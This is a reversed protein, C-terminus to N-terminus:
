LALRVSATWRRGPLTRPLVAGGAELSRPAWDFTNEHGLANALGVRVALRGLGVAREWALAVDLALLAPLEAEAPDALAPAFGDALAPAEPGLLYDYYAARYGWTRGLVARGATEVALGGGVGLRVDASLRHPAEWPTPVARGDFRGPVTRRAREASYAAAARLRPGAYEARVGAGIASGRVAAVVDAPAREAPTDPGAAVLAPVDLALARGDFRGFTEARLTWRAGPLVLADAALHVSRPPAVDATTPLWVFLEPVVAAPSASRVALGNVFQRYLGGALRVAYDGVGRWAGDYRASLRPEAYVTARAPVATLRVGGELTTRVGLTARGGLSSTALWAGAGVAFPAMFGNGAEVHAGVHEAGLSASLERGPGLSLTGEAEVARETLVHRADAGRADALAAYFADDAPGADARRGGFRYRYSSRHDSARARVAVLGRAGVLRTYRATGAWNTWDYDDRVGLLRDPMGGEAGALTGAREAAVHNRARYLSATATGLPDPRLRVAAHLDSFDVDHGDGAPRLASSAVPTGLWLGTFAPDFQSWDDLLDDLGPDRYLGWASQRLAVAAAGETGGLRLPAAVRGNLSVPDVQVTAGARSASVDHELDVVGALASGHEAGFGAKRVTMRSLALPSFAGLHRGLAVPDRVPAGDLRTVHEATAGGQVHVDGLPLAASVGLVGAAGRAVDVTGVSGSAALPGDRTSLPALGEDGAAVRDREGVGLRESPLRQTLGDVVVPGSAVPTPTLRVELVRGTGPAVGQARVAAPTYGVHTAVLRHDGPLLGALAFLGDGDASTGGGGDALVVHAYPLPAGTEADVVRGALRVRAPEERVAEILVYAGSSSRVFDLGTGRLVCALLAEPSVSRAACAARKGAVLPAPYVLEIGTLGVLEALARDLPADRFTATYGDPATQARPAAASALLVLALVSLRVALPRVTM